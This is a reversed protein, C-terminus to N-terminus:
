QLKKMSMMTRLPAMTSAKWLIMMGTMPESNSRRDNGDAPLHRHDGDNTMMFSIWDMSSVRPAVLCRKTVQHLAKMQISDMGFCGIMFTPLQNPHRHRGRDFRPEVTHDFPHLCRHSETSLCPARTALKLLIVYRPRPAGRPRPRPRQQLKSEMVSMSETDQERRSSPKRRGSHGSPLPDFGPKPNSWFNGVAEEEAKDTTWPSVSMNEETYKVDDEEEYYYGDKVVDLDSVQEGEYRMNQLERAEDSEGTYSTRYPVKDDREDVRRGRSAAYCVLSHRDSNGRPVNQSLFASSPSFLSLVLLFAANPCLM